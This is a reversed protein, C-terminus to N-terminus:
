GQGGAIRAALVQVTALTAEYDSKAIMGIPAHLYRCPISVATTRVGGRSVHIAGSDNGGSVFTKTQVPVGAQKGCALALEYFARDYCTSRDMFSITAGEGVRCAKRAEDVGALDGATTTELVIAADPAVTFTATKAGRLGIEEQTAFVFTLDYPQETRIMEIMVACGARDDLAKGRLMGHEDYYPSAFTIADGVAVHQEAEERSQAGIDVAMSKVAIPKNEEEGKCLHIPKAGIVGCVKNPGVAVQVGALVKEDIGGVTEFHLLGDDSIYTVILGVEDMHADLMVRRVPRQKGSKEAIICGLPTVTIKECYPTIENLILARVNEERGSIGDAECLRRLLAYDAM